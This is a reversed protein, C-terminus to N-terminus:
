ALAHLFVEPQAVEKLARNAVVGMGNGEYISCSHQIV